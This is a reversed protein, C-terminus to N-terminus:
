AHGAVEVAEDRVAAGDPRDGLGAPRQRLWEKVAAPLRPSALRHNTRRFVEFKVELDLDDIWVAAPNASVEEETLVITPRVAAACVWRDVFGAFTDPASRITELVSPASTHEPMTAWEAVRELIDAYAELPLIQQAILDLPDPRRCEIQLDTGPITVLVLRNRIQEATATPM